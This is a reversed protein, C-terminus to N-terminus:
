PRNGLRLSIGTQLNYLHNSQHDSGIQEVPDLYHQWQLGLYYSLRSGFPRSHLTASLGLLTNTSYLPQELLAGIAVHKWGPIFLGLEIGLNLPRFGGSAYANDWHAELYWVGDAPGGRGQMVAALRYQLVSSTGLRLQTKDWMSAATTMPGLALAIVIAALRRSVRPM